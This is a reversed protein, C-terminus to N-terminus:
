IKSQTKKHQLGKIDFSKTQNQFFLDENCQMM